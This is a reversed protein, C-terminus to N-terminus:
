KQLYITFEKLPAVKRGNRNDIEVDVSVIRYTENAIEVQDDIMYDAEKLTQIAITYELNRRYTDSVVRTHVKDVYKFKFFDYDRYQTYEINHNNLNKYVVKGDFRYSLNNAFM